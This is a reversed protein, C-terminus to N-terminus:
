AGHLVFVAGDLHRHQKIASSAIVELWFGPEIDLANDRYIYFVLRAWGPKGLQVVLGM